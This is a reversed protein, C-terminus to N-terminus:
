QGLTGLWPWVCVVVTSIFKDWFPSVVLQDNQVIRNGFFFSIIM